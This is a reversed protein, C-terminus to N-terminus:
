AIALCYRVIKETESPAVSIRAASHRTRPRTGPTTETVSVTAGRCVLELLALIADVRRRQDTRVLERSLVVNPDAFASPHLLGLFKGQNDKVLTGLFRERLGRGLMGSYVACALPRELSANSRGGVGVISQGFV